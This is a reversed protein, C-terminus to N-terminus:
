VGGAARATPLPPAPKGIVPLREGVRLVVPTLQSAKLPVRLTHIYFSVLPEARELHRLTVPARQAEEELNRLAAQDLSLKLLPDQGTDAALRQIEAPHLEGKAELVPDLARGLTIAATLLLYLLGFGIVGHVMVGALHDLAGLGPLRVLLSAIFRAPWALAITVLAATLLVLATGQLFSRPGLAQAIQGQYRSAFMLAILFALELLFPRIAGKILGFLIAAGLSGLIVLDLWSM